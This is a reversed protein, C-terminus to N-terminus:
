ACLWSSRPPMKRKYAFPGERARSKNWVGLRRHRSIHAGCAHADFHMESRAGGCSRRTLIFLNRALERLVRTWASIHDIRANSPNVSRIFGAQRIEMTLVDTDHTCADSTSFADSSYPQYTICRPILIRCYLHQKANEILKPSNISLQFTKSLITVCMLLLAGYVKRFPRESISPKDRYPM